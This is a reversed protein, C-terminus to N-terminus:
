VSGVQIIWAVWLLRDKAVNASNRLMNGPEPSKFRSMTSPGTSQRAGRKEKAGM